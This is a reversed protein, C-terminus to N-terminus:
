LANVISYNFYKSPIKCEDFAKKLVAETLEIKEPNSRIKSYFEPNSSSSKMKELSSNEIINQLILKKTSAGLFSFIRILEQEKNKFLDEYKVLLVRDPFQSYNKIINNVLISWVRCRKITFIGRDIKGDVELKRLTEPNGDKKYHRMQHDWTSLSTNIPNRVIYIIKAKTFRELLAKGNNIIFDNDNIGSIKKSSKIDLFENILKYFAELFMYQQTLKPEIGMIAATEALHNNYRVHTNLLERLLGNFYHESQCSVEPHTDLVRQLFTTGSKIPGGCFFIKM